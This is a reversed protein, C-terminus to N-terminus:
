ATGHLVAGDLAAILRDTVEDISGIGDVQVLLGRDAYAQALPATQETYIDLRRAISAETDDARGEIQARKALRALLEDRDAALEVVADLAVGHEALIEDLEGVQATNRPYGDLIFGEAVDAHGLRDRVMANTVSDPVLEGRDAYSKATRGLETGGKINARFIDGTSIAPM